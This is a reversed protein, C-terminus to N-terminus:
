AAREGKPASSRSKEIRQHRRDQEHDDRLAKYSVHELDFRQRDTLTFWWLAAELRALDVGAERALWTRLDSMRLADLWQRAQSVTWATPSTAASPCARPERSEQWRAILADRRRSPSHRRRFEADEALMALWRLDTLDLEAPNIPRTAPHGPTM